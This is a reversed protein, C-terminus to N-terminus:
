ATDGRRAGVAIWERTGYDFEALPTMADERDLGAMKRYEQKENWHISCVAHLRRVEQWAQEAWRRVSEADREALHRRHAEDQYKRELSRIRALREDPTMNEPRKAM